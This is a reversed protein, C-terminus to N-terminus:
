AEYGEKKSCLDLHPDGQEKTISHEQNKKNDYRCEQTSSGHSPSTAEEVIERRNEKDEENVLGETIQDGREMGINIWPQNPDIKGEETDMWGEPHLSPGDGPQRVDHGNSVHTVIEKRHDEDYEEIKLL